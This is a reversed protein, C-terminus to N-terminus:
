PPLMDPGQKLTSVLSGCIKWAGEQCWEDVQFLDGGHSTKREWSYRVHRCARSGPRVWAHGSRLGGEVFGGDRGSQDGDKAAFEAVSKQGAAARQMEGGVFDEVVHAVPVTDHKKDAFTEDLDAGESGLTAFNNVIDALVAIHDALKTGAVGRAAIAGDGEFGSFGNADRVRFNNVRQAAIGIEEDLEEFNEAVAEGVSVVLDGSEGRLIKGAAENLDEETEGGFDAAGGALSNLNGGIEGLFLNGLHHAGTALTHGRGQIREPAAAQQFIGAAAM